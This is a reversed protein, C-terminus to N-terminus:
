DQLREVVLPLEMHERSLFWCVVVNREHLVVELLLPVPSKAKM